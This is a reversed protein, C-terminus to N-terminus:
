RDPPSCGDSGTCRTSTMGDYVHEFGAEPASVDNRVGAAVNYDFLAGLDALGEGEPLLELLIAGGHGDTHHGFFASRRVFLEGGGAVWVAGGGASPETGQTRRSANCLFLCDLCDVRTGDGVAMAGGAESALGKEFHAERLDVEAHWGVMHGGIAAENGIMELSELRVLCEEGAVGGGAGGARNGHFRVGSGAVGPTRARDARGECRLGAGDGAVGFHQFTLDTLEVDTARERVWLGPGHDGGGDLVGGGHGGRIRVSGPLDVELTAYWPGGCFTLEGLRRFTYAVPDGETGAAFVGTIDSAVGDAGRWTVGVEDDILAGDCDTDKGDCLPPAGPYVDPALDDCDGEGVTFGDGDRDPDVVQVEPETAGCGGALVLALAARM